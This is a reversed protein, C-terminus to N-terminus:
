KVNDTFTRSMRDTKTNPDYVNWQTSSGNNCNSYYVVNGDVFRYVTCGEHTFLKEVKFDPNETSIVKIADGRCGVLLLLSCYVVMKLKNM